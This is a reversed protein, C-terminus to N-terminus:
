PPLDNAASFRQGDIWVDVPRPLRPDRRTADIGQKAWDAWLDWPPLFLYGGVPEGVATYRNQLVCAATAACLLGAQEEHHENTRIQGWFLADGWHIADRLQRDGGHARWQELLWEFRGGRRHKPQNDFVEGPLMVGLLANPFAEVVRRGRQVRPHRTQRRSGRTLDAFQEATDCGGRRLAAGVGHCTEGASCRGLFPRWLLAKEAPRPEFHLVGRPLVPGDIALVDVREIPGIVAARSLKDAWAHGVALRGEGALCVGSTPKHLVLGVDIGLVIGM